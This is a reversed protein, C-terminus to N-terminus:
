GILRVGPDPRRRRTEGRRLLADGGGGRRRAGPAAADGADPNGRHWRAGRARGGRPGLRDGGIVYASCNHSADAYLGKCEAVFARAEEESSVPALTCVFRSRKIETEHETIDEPTLYPVAM